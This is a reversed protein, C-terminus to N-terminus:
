HNPLSLHAFGTGFLSCLSHPFQTKVPDMEGGMRREVAGVGARNGAACAAYPILRSSQAHPGAPGCGDLVSSSLM